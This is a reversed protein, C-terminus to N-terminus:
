QQQAAAGPRAGQKAAAQQAAAMAQAAALMQPTLAIGAPLVVPTVLGASTATAAAGGARQAAAVQQAAAAQQLTMGSKAAMVAALQAQQQLQLQAAAAQQQLLHQAVQQQGNAGGAAAAAAGHPANGYPEVEYILSDDEDLVAIQAAIGQAASESLVVPPQGPPIAHEVKCGAMDNSQLAGLFELLPEAMAAVTSPQVAAPEGSMFNSDADAIEALRADATPKM